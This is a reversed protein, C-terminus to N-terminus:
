SAQREALLREVARREILYPARLGDFAKVAPLRGSRIMKNVTSVDRGLLNAAESATIVSSLNPM